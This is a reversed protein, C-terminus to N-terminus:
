ICLALVKIPQHLFQPISFLPSFRSSFHLIYPPGLPKREWKEMGGVLCLMLSGLCTFFTADKLFKPSFYQPLDYDVQIKSIGNQKVFSIKDQYENNKSKM